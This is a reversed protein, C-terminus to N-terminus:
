RGERLFPHLCSNKEDKRGGSNTWVTKCGLEKEWVRRRLEENEMHEPSYLMFKEKKFYFVAEVFKSAASAVPL